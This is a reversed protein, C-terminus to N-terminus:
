TKQGRFKPLEKFLDIESRKLGTICQNERPMGNRVPHSWSVQIRQFCRGERYKDNLLQAEM